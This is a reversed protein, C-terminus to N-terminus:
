NVFCVLLWIKGRQGFRGEEYDDNPYIAHVVDIRKDVDGKDYMDRVATSCRERGFLKVMSGVTLPVDRFITDVNGRPSNALCYSGMTFVYARAGDEADLEVHMAVTGFTGFDDYLQHLGSYINSRAALLSLSRDVATLHSKVAPLDSMAPDPYTLRFWPRSPSTIGTMMGSALTRRAEIPTFNIIKRQKSRDARNAETNSERFGRPRMQEAILRWEELWSSREAVLAEHRQRLRHLKKLKEARPANTEDVM